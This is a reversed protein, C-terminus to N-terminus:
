NWDCKCGKKRRYNCHKGNGCAIDLVIEGSHVNLTRVLHSSISHLMTSITRYDGLKLVNGPKTNKLGGKDSAINSAENEINSLGLKNM